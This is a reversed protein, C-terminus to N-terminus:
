NSMMAAIRIKNKRVTAQLYGQGMCYKLNYNAKPKAM